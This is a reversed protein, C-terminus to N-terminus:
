HRESRLRLRSAWFNTKPTTRRDMPSALANFVCTAAYSTSCTTWPARLIGRAERKETRCAVPTAASLRRASECFARLGLVDDGADNTSGGGRCTALEVRARERWLADRRLLNGGRPTTGKLNTARDAIRRPRLQNVPYDALVASASGTETNHQLPVGVSVPSTCLLARRATACRTKLGAVTIGGIGTEMFLDDHDTITSSDAYVVSGSADDGARSASSTMVGRRLHRLLGSRHFARRSSSMSSRIITSVREDTGCLLQLGARTRDGAGRPAPARRLHRRHYGGQEHKSGHGM